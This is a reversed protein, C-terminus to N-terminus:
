RIAQQTDNPLINFTEGGLLKVESRHRSDFEGFSAEPMKARNDLNRKHSKSSSCRQAGGIYQTLM